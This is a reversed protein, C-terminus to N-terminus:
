DKVFRHHSFSLLVRSKTSNRLLESCSRLLAVHAYHNFVVDSILVLDFGRGQSLDKLQQINSGWKHGVVEVNQLKLNLVNKRITAILEEDPFDTIV